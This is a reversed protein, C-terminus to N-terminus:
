GGLASNVANSENGTLGGGQELFEAPFFLSAGGTLEDKSNYTYLYDDDINQEAALWDKESILYVSGTEAIQLDMTKWNSFRHMNLYYTNDTVTDGICSGWIEQYYGDLDINGAPAYFLACIKGYMAFYNIDGGFSAVANPLQKLNSGINDSNSYVDYINVDGQSAVIYTLKMDVTTFINVDHNAYITVPCTVNHKIKATPIATGCRDCKYTKSGDYNSCYMTYTKGHKRTNKNPCTLTTYTAGQSGFGVLPTQSSLDIQLSAANCSFDHGFYILSDHSLLTQDYSFCDWTGLLSSNKNLTLEGLSYVSGNKLSLADKVNYAFEKIKDIINGMISGDSESVYAVHKYTNNNFAEPLVWMDANSRLTIYNLAFTYKGVCVRSFGYEKIYGTYSCLSKGIYFNGGNAKDTVEDGLENKAVVSEKMCNQFDSGCVPCGSDTGVQQDSCETSCTCKSEVACDGYNNSCVPCDANAASCRTECICSAGIEEDDKRKIDGRSDKYAEDFKGLEIYRLATMNGGVFVRSEDRIKITNLTAELSGCVFVTAATKAEFSTGAKVKKGCFLISNERMVIYNGANIDGRVMINSYEEADIFGTGSILKIIDASGPVRLDGGVMMNGDHSLQIKHRVYCDGGVKLTTGAYISLRGRTKFNGQVYFYGAHEYNYDFNPDDRSYDRDTMFTEQAAWTDDGKSSFTMSKGIEINQSTNTTYNLFDGYIYADSMDRFRFTEKVYASGRVILHYFQSKNDNEEFGSKASDGIVTFKVDDVSAGQIRFAIEVLAAQINALIGKYTAGNGDGKGDIAFTTNRKPVTISNTFFANGVYINANSYAIFYNWTSGPMGIDGKGVNGNTSTMFDRGVYTYSSSDIDDDGKITDPCGIRACRKSECDGGTMFIANQMTAFGGGTYTNGKIFTKAGVHTCIGIMNIGMKNATTCNYINLDGNIYMRGWNQVAGGALKDDSSDKARGLTISSGCYFVANSNPKLSNEVFGNALGIMGKIDEVVETTTWILQINNVGYADDSYSLTGKIYFKGGNLIAQGYQLNTEVSFGSDKGTWITAATSVSGYFHTQSYDGTRISFHPAYTSEKGSHRTTSHNTDNYQGILTRYSFEYQDPVISGHVVFRSAKTYFDGFTAMAGGISWEQTGGVYMIVDSDDNSLGNRICYGNGLYSDGKDSWAGTSYDYNLNNCVVLEGQNYISCRVNLDNCGLVAGKAVRTALGTNQVTLAGSFHTEGSNIRIAVYRNKVVGDDIIEGGAPGTVKGVLNKNVADTCQEVFSNDFYNNGNWDIAQGSEIIGRTGSGVKLPGIFNTCGANFAFSFSNIDVYGMLYMEGSQNDFKHAGLDTTGDICVMGGNTLAVDSTNGFIVESETVFAGGDITSPLHLKIKGGSGPYYFRGKLSDACNVTFTPTTVGKFAPSNPGCYILGTTDVRFTKALYLEVKNMGYFQSNDYVEISSCNTNNFVVAKHGSHLEIRYVGTLGADFDGCVKTFSQSNGGFGAVTGISLNGYVFLRGNNDFQGGLSVKRMEQINEWGSGTGLYVTANTQNNQFYAINGSFCTKHGRGYISIVSGDGTGTIYVGKTLGDSTLWGSVYVQGTGCFEFTRKGTTKDSLGAYITANCGSMDGRVYLKGGNNLIRHEASLNGNVYMAGENILSHRDDDIYSLLNLNGDCIVIGTSYNYLSKINMNKRKLYITGSNEVKFASLDDEVYANSGADITWTSSVTISGFEMKTGTAEIESADLENEVKIAGNNFIIKGAVSINGVSDDAGSCFLIGSAYGIIDGGVTVNGNVVYVQGSIQLNGIPDGEGDQRSRTTLDGNEIYTIGNQYFTTTSLSQAVIYSGSQGTINGPVSIAGSTRIEGHNVMYEALISTAQIVGDSTSNTLTGAVTISEGCKVKGSNSMASGASMANAVQLYSNAGNTLSGAVAATNDIKLVGRNIVNGSADLKGGIYMSGFSDNTLDKCNANVNIKINGNNTINKNKNADGFSTILIRGDNNLNANISGAQVKGTSSVTVTKSADATIAGVSYVEGNVTANAFTVSNGAITQGAGVTFDSGSLNFDYHACASFNDPLGITTNSITGGIVLKSGSAINFYTSNANLNGGIVCNKHVTLKATSANGMVYLNDVNASDINTPMVLSGCIITATGNTDTLKIDRTNLEGTVILTSGAKMELTGKEGGEIKMDGNVFMTSNNGVVVTYPKQADCKQYFNGDIYAFCNLDTTFRSNNDNNFYKYAVGNYEFTSTGGVYLKSNKQLEVCRNGTKKLQEAKFGDFYITANEEIRMGMKYTSGWSTKKPDVIRSYAHNGGVSYTESSETHKQFDFTELTAEFESRQPHTQKGLETSVATSATTDGTNPWVMKKMPYNTGMIPITNTFDVTPATYPADAANGIGSVDPLNITVPQSDIGAMAAGPWGSHDTKLMTDLTKGPVSNITTIDIGETLFVDSEKPAAAAFTKESISNTFAQYSKHTNVYNRITAIKEPGYNGKITENYFKDVEYRGYKNSNQANFETIYSEPTRLIGNDDYLKEGRFTTHGADDNDYETLVLNSADTVNDGGVVKQRLNYRFLPSTDKSTLATDSAYKNDQYPNITGPDYKGAEKEADTVATGKKATMTKQTSIFKEMDSQANAVAKKISTASETNSDAGSDKNTTANKVSRNIQRVFYPRMNPIDVYASLEQFTKAVAFRYGAVTEDPVTTMNKVNRNTVEAEGIELTATTDNKTKTFVVNYSAKSSASDYYNVSNVSVHPEMTHTNDIGADVVEELLDSITTDQEIDLMVKNATNNTVDYVIMKQNFLSFTGNANYRLNNVQNKIAEKQEDSVRHQATLYKEAAETYATQLAATSNIGVFDMTDIIKLVCQTQELYQQNQVYVHSNRDNNIDFVRSIFSSDAMSANSFYIGGVATYTVQNYDDYTVTDGECDTYNASCVPCAEDKNAANCLSICTCEINDGTWLADKTRSANLAQVGINIDSNSHVDGNTVTTSLSPSILDNYNGTGGFFEILPQVIQNNIGNVVNTFANIISTLNGDARGNLQVTMDKYRNAKTTNGGFITYNLAKPMEVYNAKIKAYGTKNLGGADGSLNRYGSFGGFMGSTTIKVNLKIYADSVYADENEEAYESDLTGKEEITIVMKDGYKDKDFGNEKLYHEAWYDKSEESSDMHQAVGVVAADVANQLKASRYYLLGGDIVLAMLLVFVMSAFVAILAIDGREQRWKKFKKM